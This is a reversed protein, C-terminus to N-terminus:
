KRVSVATQKKNENVRVGSAPNYMPSEGTHRNKPPIPLLCGRLDYVGPFKMSIATGPSSPRFVGSPNLKFQVLTDNHSALIVGPLDTCFNRYHSDDGGLGGTDTGFHLQWKKQLNDDLMTVFYNLINTGMNVTEDSITIMVFGDGYENIDKPTEYKGFDFMVTKTLTGNVAFKELLIDRTAFFKAKFLAGGDKSGLSLIHGNGNAIVAANCHDAVTKILKGTKDSSVIFSPNYYNNRASSSLYLTDNLSTISIFAGFSTDSKCFLSEGNQAIKVLFGSKYNIDGCFFLSNDTGEIFDNCVALPFTDRLSKTWLVEGNLNIKSVLYRNKLMLLTNDKLYRFSLQNNTVNGLNVPTLSQSLLSGASSLVVVRDTVCVISDGRGGVFLCNSSFTKSWSKVPTPEANSQVWITILFVCLLHTTKM